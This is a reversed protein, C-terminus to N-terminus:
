RLRWRIVALCKPMTATLWWVAEMHGIKPVSVATVYGLAGLYQWNTADSQQVAELYWLPYWNFVNEVKLKIWLREEYLGLCDERNGRRQFQLRAKEVFVMKSRGKECEGIMASPLFFIRFVNDVRWKNPIGSNERKGKEMKKQKLKQM